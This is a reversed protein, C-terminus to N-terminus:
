TDTDGSHHRSPPAPPGGAARIREELRAVKGSATGAQIARETAKAKEIEAAKQRDAMYRRTREEIASVGAGPSESGKADLSFAQRELPILRHANRSLAETIQAAENLMSLTRLQEEKGAPGDEIKTLADLRAFLRRQIAGLKSLDKRHERVVKVQTAAADNVISAQALPDAKIAANHHAAADERLLEGRAQRRVADSLDREWGYKKARDRLRTTSMGHNRSIVRISLVGGRYEAEVQEWDM